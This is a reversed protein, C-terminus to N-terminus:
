QIYVYLKPEKPDDKVTADNPFKKLEKYMYFDGIAGAILLAGLIVLTFNDISFGIITPIVGTTWFPLLLAKKMAANKLPKKTTAYAVGLQFNVGYDLEKYKVKGFLMFGILHFVEHLIILICYGIFVLLLDWLSFNAKFRQHILANSLIFLILLLITFIINDRALKKMNLAITIPINTEM